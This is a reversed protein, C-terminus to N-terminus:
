LIFQGNKKQIHKNSDALALNNWAVSTYELESRLLAAYLVKLSDVPSINNTIFRTFGLLM